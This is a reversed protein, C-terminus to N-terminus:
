VCLRKSCGKPNSHLVWEYSVLKIKKGIEWGILKKKKNLIKLEKVETSEYARSFITCYPILNPPLVRMSIPLHFLRPWTSSVTTCLAKARRCYNSATKSTRSLAESNLLVISLLLGSSSRRADNVDREM